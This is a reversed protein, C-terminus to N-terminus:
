FEANPVFVKEWLGAFGINMRGGYGAGAVLELGQKMGVALTTRSSRREAMQPAENKNM